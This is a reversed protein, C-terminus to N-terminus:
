CGMSTTKTKTTTVARGGRLAAITEIPLERPM